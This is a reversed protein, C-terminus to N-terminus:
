GAGACCDPVVPHCHTYATCVRARARARAANRSKARQQFYVAARKLVYVFSIMMVNKPDDNKMMLPLPPVVSPDALSFASTAVAAAFALLLPTPGVPDSKM